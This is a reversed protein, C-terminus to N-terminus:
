SDEKMKAVESIVLDKREKKTAESWMKPVIGWGFGAGVPQM